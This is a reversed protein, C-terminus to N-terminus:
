SIVVAIHVFQISGYMQIEDITIKRKRENMQPNSKKNYQSNEKESYRIYKSSTPERKSGCMNLEPM